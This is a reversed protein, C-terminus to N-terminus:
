SDKTIMTMSAHTPVVDEETLRLTLANLDQLRITELELNVKTAFMTRIILQMEVIM